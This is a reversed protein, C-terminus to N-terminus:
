EGIIKVVTQHQVNIPKDKDIAKKDFLGFKVLLPKIETAQEIHPKELRPQPKVNFLAIRQCVPGITGSRIPKGCKACRPMTIEATFM